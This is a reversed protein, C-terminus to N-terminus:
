YNSINKNQNRIRISRRVKVIPREEKIKLYQVDKKPALFKGKSISDEEKKIRDINILVKRIPKFGMDTIKSQQSCSVEDLKNLQPYSVEDLKNLQPYSVEDLKNLQPYSVEDLKNLQPCSFSNKKIFTNSNSNNNLFNQLMQSQESIKHQLTRNQDLLNTLLRETPLM